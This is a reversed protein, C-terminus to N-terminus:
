RHYLRFVATIVYFLCVLIIRCGHLAVECRALGSTLFLPGWWQQLEAAQAMGYTHIFSSYLLVFEGDNDDDYCLSLCTAKSQKM